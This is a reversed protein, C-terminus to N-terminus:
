ECESSQLEESEGESGEVEVGDGEGGDLEDGKNNNPGASGEVADENSSLLALISDSNDSGDEDAAGVNMELGGRTLAHTHLM